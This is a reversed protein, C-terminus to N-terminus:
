TPYDSGIFSSLSQIQEAQQDLVANVLDGVGLVGVVRGEHVVPLHRIGRQGVISLCARLTTDPSVTIVEATMIEEVRTEKSARGLLIVKRTYDRESVIGVLEDGDMVVLAGVGCDTMRAIADYVTARPNVAYVTNGKLELMDAVNGRLTSPINTGLKM